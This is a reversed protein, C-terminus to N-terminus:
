TDLTWFRDVTCKGSPTKGTVAGHDSGNGKRTVWKGNAGPGKKRSSNVIAIINFTKDHHYQIISQVTEM